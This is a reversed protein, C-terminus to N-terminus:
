LANQQQSALLALSRGNHEARAIKEHPLSGLDDIGQAAMKSLKSNDDHSAADPAQPRLQFAACM